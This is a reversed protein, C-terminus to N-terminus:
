KNKIANMRGHKEIKINDAAARQHNASAQTLLLQRIGSKNATLWSRSTPGLLFPQDYYNLMMSAMNVYLPHVNMLDALVRGRVPILFQPNQGATTPVMSAYMVNYSTMLNLLQLAYPYKDSTLKSNISAMDVFFEETIPLWTDATPLIRFSVSDLYAPPFSCLNETIGVLSRGYGQTFWNIRQTGPDQYSAQAVGAMNTYERLHNIANYDIQSLPPLVPNSSYNNNLNMQAMVYLTADTTSGSYDILLGQRPPPQPNQPDTSNGLLAYLSDIGNARLQSLAWDSKRYFYVNSCGLYPLANVTTNSTRVASWAYNMFGTWDNVSSIPIQMLYNQSMFYSYYMGDFVFVDLSDPPDSSYCDYDVYNLAVGTQLNNWAQTLQDKFQQPRPLYPYIAVNLSQPAGVKKQSYGLSSIFLGLCLIFSFAIRIRKLQSNQM